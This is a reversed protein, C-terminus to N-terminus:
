KTKDHRLNWREVAQKEDRARIKYFGTVFEDEGKACWHLVEVALLQQPRTGSWPGLVERLEVEGGGCFPCSKAGIM